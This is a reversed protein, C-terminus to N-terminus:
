KMVKLSVENDKVLRKPAVVNVPTFKINSVTTTAPVKVENVQKFIDM